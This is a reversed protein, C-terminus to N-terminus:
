DMKGSTALSEVGALTNTLNYQFKGVRIVQDTYMVYMCM